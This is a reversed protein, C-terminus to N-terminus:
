ATPTVGRMVYDTLIKGIKDKPANIQNARERAKKVAHLLTTVRNQIEKKRQPMMRTSYEVSTWTGVNIDETVLQTQAPHEPSHPYLVLARQTKATRFTITADAVWMNTAPDHKWSKGPDPVPISGLTTALNILNKELAMLNTVPVHKALTVTDDGEGITIDAFAETNGLDLQYLTDTLNVFIQEAEELMQEVSWQPMKKEAPLDEGDEKRKTYTRSLGDFTSGKQGAQLKHYIETLAKNAEGKIGKAVAVIECMRAM